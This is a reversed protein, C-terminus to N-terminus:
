LHYPSRMTRTMMRNAQDDNVFKELRNDWTCTRGLKMAIHAQHCAIDSYFASEINSIPTKRSKVCDLFNRHHNNSVPLHDEDSSITLNLLSKPQADMFGRGVYIWGETGEFLIAMWFLGFQWATKTATSMDMHRLKLGNQYTHDVDFRQATDYFGNTPFYGTGATTIPAADDSRNAWQVMDVSHIGWAGSVCGLSYDSLLTWNRTCREFTYPAWPAPGLWRDYDFGPPVPQEEQRPIQQYGASGIKVATLEGIKHNRVLELAHRFTQDSRQQTGFQFVVNYQKVVDRVAKSEAISLSLPKEYYMDKRHRAAEVGILAHWNDPTAIMVADIEPSSVLERYDSYSRCDQNGYKEDVLSKARQRHEERVDCVAIIRVDDQGLFSRVHGSGMSGVGICGMVIQDSPATAGQRGLVHSPIITAATTLLSKQVFERRKM